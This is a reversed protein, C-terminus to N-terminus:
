GIGSAEPITLESNNKVLLKALSVSSPVKILRKVLNESIPLPMRPCNQYMVSTHQLNWLPRSNINNLNLLDLLKNRFKSLTNDLLFANLWYNSKAYTPEKIFKIGILDSLNNYYYNALLRKAYLFKPLQELQACGLAANINPLRYNFGVEDHEFEWPHSLKATTTIHKARKALEADDTLIAGGGGTTVIKNGNFSLTGLLGRHGVHTGKYYSGLAEASDEILILHYKNCLEELPDLDVPHGLTHVVSLARIPRGTIINICQKYKIKTITNLYDDLAISSVGLTEEDVDVFHPTAGCYFIPNITGVFTLTPVLIEDGSKIGSLLYSIHLAATGNVAAIAYKAGTFDILNQEFKDVFKGVSSVWGTDICEKVYNWENGNFYPEHLTIFDDVCCISTQIKEFIKNIM